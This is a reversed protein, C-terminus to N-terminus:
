PERSPERQSPTVLRERMMSVLEPYRRWIIRAGRPTLLRLRDHLIGHPFNFLMRWFNWEQDLLEGPVKIRLRNSLYLTEWHIEEQVAASLM